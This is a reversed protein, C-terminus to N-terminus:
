FGVGVGGGFVPGRGFYISNPDQLLEFLAQFYISSRGGLSQSVGAGVLLHPVWIRKGPEIYNNYPDINMHLFEAHLYAQPIVRYRVFPRYGYGTFQIPPNFRNDQFYWYSFGLGTTFKGKLDVKYGILPDLQISTTTGFSLGVGGGFWLRDKLPRTDRREKQSPTSPTGTDQGFTIQTSCFLILIIFSLRKM